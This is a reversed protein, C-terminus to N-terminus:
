ELNNISEESGATESFIDFEQPGEKQNAASTSFSLSSPQVATGADRDVDQDFSEPTDSYQSMGPVLPHPKELCVAARPARASSQGPARTARWCDSLFGSFHM